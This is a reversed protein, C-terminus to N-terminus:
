LLVSRNSGLLVATTASLLESCLDYRLRREHATVVFFESVEFWMARLSSCM